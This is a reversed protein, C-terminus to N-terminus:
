YQIELRKEAEWLTKGKLSFLSAYAFMAVTSPLWLHAPYNFCSSVLFGLVMAKLVLETRDEAKNSFFGNVLNIILVGGIIGLEFMFHFLEMHLHRAQPFATHRYINNIAGIGAGTIPMQHFMRFYEKWLLLRGRPSLFEDPAYVFFILSLPILCLWWLSKFFYIFVCLAVVYGSIAPDNKTTSTYLLVLGM